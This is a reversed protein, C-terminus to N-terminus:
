SGPLVVLDSQKSSNGAADLAQVFYSYAQDASLGSDAYETAAGDLTEVLAGNRFIRYATVGDSEDASPWTLNAGTGNGTRTGQVDPTEPPDVDGTTPPMYYSLTGADTAVLLGGGVLVPQAFGSLGALFNVVDGTGADVLPVGKTAGPDSKYEPAAIVGGASLSPTGLVVGGIGTEWIAAGTSPSVKRLSGRYAVGDLMTPLTPNGGVILSSGNWVPAALCSRQGRGAGMGVQLNWVPGEALDDRKWAYLVGNKNCAAVLDTDTGSITAHFLTPSSAFDPDGLRDEPPVTWLSEKALTTGDLRVISYNDGQPAPDEPGSGITVYVDGNVSDRAPSTWVGGGTAHPPVGWYTADRTGTSQDFSQVGGRVWPKDCNSSVGMYVHGNGVIPSAWNYIDNVKTSPLRRGVVSRWDTKGTAADLAYLYGDGAGVYVTARGSEPDPGVAATSVFGHAPCTLRPQYGLMRRWRVAGTNANLAYFWGTNSGIFVSNGFVTPSAFFKSPPQGRRNASDATFRWQRQLTQAQAPTLTAAPSTSSHEGNFLYGAWDTGPAGVTAGVAGAILVLIVSVFVAIRGM